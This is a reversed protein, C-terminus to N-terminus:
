KDGARRMFTRTDPSAYLRGYARAHACAVHDCPSQCADTSRSYDWVERKLGPTFTTPM